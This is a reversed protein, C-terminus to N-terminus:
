IKKQILWEHGEPDAVIGQQYGYDFDQVPSLEHGGATVAKKMVASPDPVFLGITVTTGKLRKPSLDNSAPAEEHLHFLAGGISMEAVHVSGDPNSWRRLEAADFARKYFEMAALVNGLKLQPAFFAPAPPTANNSM